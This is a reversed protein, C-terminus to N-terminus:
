KHQGTGGRGDSSTKKKKNERKGFLGSSWATNFCVSSRAEDGSSSGAELSARMKCFEVAPWYFRIGAPM